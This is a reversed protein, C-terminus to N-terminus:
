DHYDDGGSGQREYAGMDVLAQREADFRAIVQQTDMGLKVVKLAVERKLPVRQEARYVTGFGGEGIVDLVHYRGIDTGSRITAVEVTATAAIEPELFAGASEHAALLNEVEHRLAGDGVCAQELFAAREGATLQLADAFIKKCAGTENM